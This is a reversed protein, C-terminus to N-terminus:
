VRVQLGEEQKQLAKGKVKLLGGFTVLVQGRSLYEKGRAWRKRSV